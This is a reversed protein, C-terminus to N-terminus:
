RTYGFEKGLGSQSVLQEAAQMDKRQLADDLSASLQQMTSLLAKVDEPNRNQILPMLEQALENYAKLYQNFRVVDQKFEDLEHENRLWRGSLNGKKQLDESSIENLNVRKRDEKMQENEQRLAVQKQDLRSRWAEVKDVRELLDGLKVGQISLTDKFKVLEASKDELRYREAQVPQM